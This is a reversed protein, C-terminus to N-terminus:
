STLHALLRAAFEDPHERHLFHGGGLEEVTYGAPFLRAARRHDDPSTVPDERGAFSVTPVTIAGRLHKPPTFGLARYYGFAANLSAGDSFCARVAAFEEPAPSWTPSWRRYIEPLAAFDNRAFRAPAGRLKFALFHRLAWVRSPTPKLTVPHPLALVMLKAVRAPELAAAGYAALAGWDHGIVIAREEGLAAILALADRALTEADADRPPIETPAYGRTFPRVVRFGRAAIQPAVHDFTHPTDPFGHLMLVLPGQGEDLCAFRLDNATVTLRAQPLGGSASDGGALSHRAPHGNRDDM